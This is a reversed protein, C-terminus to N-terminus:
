TDVEAAWRGRRDAADRELNNNVCAAEAADAAASSRGARDKWM